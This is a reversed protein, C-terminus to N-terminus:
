VHPLYAQDDANQMGTQLSEKFNEPVTAADNKHEDFAPIAGLLGAVVMITLIKKM